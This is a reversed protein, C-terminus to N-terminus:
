VSITDTSTRYIPISPTYVIIHNSITTMDTYIDSYNIHDLLLLLPSTLDQYEPPYPIDIELRPFSLFICENLQQHERDPLKM